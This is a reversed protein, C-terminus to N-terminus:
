RDNCGEGSDLVDGPAVWAFSDSQDTVEAEVAIEFDIGGLFFDGDFCTEGDMVDGVNAALGSASARNEVIEYCESDAFDERDGQGSAIAFAEFQALRELAERSDVQAVEEM